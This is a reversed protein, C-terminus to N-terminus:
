DPRDHKGGIALRDRDGCGATMHHEHVRGVPLGAPCQGAVALGHPRQRESGATIKQGHDAAVCPRDVKPVRPRAAAQVRQPLRQAAPEATRGERRVPRQQRGGAGTGLHHGPVHRSAPAHAGPFAAVRREIGQGERRQAMDQGAARGLALQPQPIHASQYAPWLLRALVARHLKSAPVQTTFNVRQGPGGIPLSQGGSGARADDAAVHGIGHRRPLQGPNPLLARSPRDDLVAGVASDQQGGVALHRRQQIDRFAPAERIRLGAVDPRSKRGGASPQGKNWRVARQAKAVQRAIAHVEATARGLARHTREGQRGIRAHQRHAAVWGKEPNRAALPDVQHRDPALQEVVPM